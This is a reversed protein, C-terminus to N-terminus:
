DERRFEGEITSGGGSANQGGAHSSGAGPGTSSMQAVVVSKSLQAIILTRGYPVLLFIGIFDTFFGPTLLLAGAVALLVGELVEHVPIQGADLKNKARTLTQIGERKLLVTGALATLVIISMTSWGGIWSGVALIGWIEVLPMLIFLIFLFPM